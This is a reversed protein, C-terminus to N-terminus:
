FLPNGFFFVDAGDHWLFPVIFLGQKLTFADSSVKKMRSACDTLIRMVYETAKPLQFCLIRTTVIFTCISAEASFTSFSWASAKRFFDLVAEWVTCCKNIKRARLPDWVRSAFENEVNVFQQGINGTVHAFAKVIRKKSRNLKVRHHKKIKHIKILFEKRCRSVVNLFYQIKCVSWM